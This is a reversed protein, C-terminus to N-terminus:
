NHVAYVCVEGTAIGVKGQEEWREREKLEERLRAVEM